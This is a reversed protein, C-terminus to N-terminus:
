DVPNQGRCDGELSKPIWRFKLEWLPLEKPTHLNMGECEKASRPAHSTIGPSGKQGAGKCAKAKTALGLSPNHCGM